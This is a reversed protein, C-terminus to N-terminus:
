LLPCSILPRLRATLYYTYLSMDFIRNIIKERLGVYTDYDITDEYEELLKLADEYNGMYMLYYVLAICIVDDDGVFDAIREGIEQAIDRRNTMIAAYLTNVMWIKESIEPCRRLRLLINLAEEYNEDELCIVSYYYDIITNSYNTYLEAIIERYHRPCSIIITDMLLTQMKTDKDISRWVYSYMCNCIKEMLCIIIFAEKPDNTTISDSLRSMIKKAEKEDGQKQRIYAELVLKYVIDPLGELLSLATDYEGSLVLARAYDLLAKQWRVERDVLLKYYKIASELNGILEEVNGMLLIAHDFIDSNPDLYKELISILKNAISINGNRFNIDAMIYLFYGKLYNSPIDELAGLYHEISIDRLKKREKPYNSVVEYITVLIQRITGSVDLLELSEPIEQIRRQCNYYISSWLYDLNELINYLTIARWIACRPINICVDGYFRLKALIYVAELRKTKELNKYDGIVLADFLDIFSGLHRKLADTNLAQIYGCLLKSFLDTDTHYIALFIVDPADLEINKNIIYNYFYEELHEMNTKFLKIIQELFISHKKRCLKIVIPIAEKNMTQIVALFALHALVADNKEIIRPFAELIEVAYKKALKEAFMDFIEFAEENEGYTGAIGEMIYCLDEFSIKDIPILPLSYGNKEFVDYLKLYLWAQQDNSIVIGHKRQLHRRPSKFL